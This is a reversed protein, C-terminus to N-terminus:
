RWQFMERFAKWYTTRRRELQERIETDLLFAEVQDFRTYSITPDWHHLLHRNFGAGGFNRSLLDVGFLRNVPGHPVTRFDAKPDAKLSRHELTQRLIALFSGLLFYGCGWALAAALSVWSFLAVLILAHVVLAYLLPLFFSFGKPPSEPRSSASEKQIRRYNSLYRLASRLLYFGSFGEAIRSPTLAEYYSIETDKLDGLFRHHRWHSVRYSKVDLGSFPTLFIRSLFDNLRGPAFNYHASEHFHAAYSQIWFAFWLAALPVLAYPVWPPTKLGNLAVFVLVGLGIMTWSFSVNLLVATFDPKLERRFDKWVVGERNKLHALSPVGNLSEATPSDM